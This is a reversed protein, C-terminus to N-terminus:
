PSQEMYKKDIICFDIATGYRQQWKVMSAPTRDWPLTHSIQPLPTPKEALIETKGQWDNNWLM